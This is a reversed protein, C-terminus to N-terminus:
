LRDMRIFAGGSCGDPHQMRMAPSADGHAVSSTVYAPSCYQQALAFLSPVCKSCMDREDHIEIACVQEAPRTDLHRKLRIMTMQDSHQFVMTMIFQILPFAQAVDRCHRGLTNLCDATATRYYSRLTVEAKSCLDSIDSMVQSVDGCERDLRDVAACFQPSSQHRKFVDPVERNLREMEVSTSVARFRYFLPALESADVLQATESVQAVVARLTAEWKHCLELLHANLMWVVSGHSYVACDLFFARLEQLWGFKKMEDVLLVEASDGVSAILRPVWGQTFDKALRTTAFFTHTTNGSVLRARGAFCNGERHQHTQVLAHLDQTSIIAHEPHASFCVRAKHRDLSVAELLLTSHLQDFEDRKMKLNLDQYAAANAISM